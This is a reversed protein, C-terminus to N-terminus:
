PLVGAGPSPRPRSAGVPPPALTSGKAALGGVPIDSMTLLGSPAGDLAGILNVLVAITTQWSDFGTASALEITRGGGEFRWRDGRELGDEPALFGFTALCSIAAEGDVIGRAGQRIAAVTGAPIRLIAGRREAGAIVVPEPADVQISELGLGVAHALHAISQRFGIHGVVDASTRAAHEEPPLGFGFKDLLPGYASLDTTREISVCEVAQMSASVVIPLTDM